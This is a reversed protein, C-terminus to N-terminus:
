KKFYYRLYMGFPLALFLNLINVLFAKNLVVSLWTKPQDKIIDSRQLIDKIFLFPELQMKHSHLTAAKEPSPLPLIVLCYMCLIYFIFSYIIVVKISIVSGYKHYNYAIYPLTFIAVVFPFLIVAQLSVEIYQNM